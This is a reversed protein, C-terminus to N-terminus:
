MLRLIETFKDTFSVDMFNFLEEFIATKSPFHKYLAAETVQTREAIVKTTIKGVQEETLIDVLSQLIMQKRNIQSMTM